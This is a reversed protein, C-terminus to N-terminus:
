IYNLPIIKNDEDLSMLREYTCILGGTGIKMSPFATKLIRFHATDRPSPTATKKIEVPYLTGNQWFILDIEKGNTDRYFYMKTDMGANSYSKVIENVVYTEFISGAQAGDRLSEPTNWKCLYCVLGTDFFYIKPMKIIRTKVNLSFPQVMYIIHSTELILIWKKITPESIGLDRSLSAINLLEGTRAALATVFQMFALKDGVQSLDRVDREIYANFYASYFDRWNIDKNSVIEPMSGRHIRQWIKGYDLKIKTNRKECYEKTPLFPKDFDDNEIERNSLGHLELISVRGALSESVGKMLKFAQSGTMFYLGNKRDKDIELKIGRFIDPAYQVEDIIIPPRHDKLFGMPDRKILDLTHFDDLSFYDSDAGVTEKLLTSKGVQRAGTVLVSPFTKRTREIISTLHRKIYMTVM